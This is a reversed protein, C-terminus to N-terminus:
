KFREKTYELLAKGELKRTSPGSRKWFDKYIGDAKVLIPKSAKKCLIQIIKKEEIEIIDLDILNSFQPEILSEIFDTIQRKIEDESEYLIELEKEIGTIEIPHDKIGILLEGGEANMFGAITKICVDKLYKEKIPFYNPDEAIKRVDLSFSEKFELFKTEGREIRAKLPDENLNFINNFKEINNFSLSLKNYLDEKDSFKFEIGVYALSCAIPNKDKRNIKYLNSLYKKDQKINNEVWNTKIKKIFKNFVKLKKILSVFKIINIKYKYLDFYEIFEKTFSFDKKYNKIYDDYLNKRYKFYKTTIGIFDEGRLHQYCFCWTLILDGSYKLVTLFLAKKKYSSIKFDELVRKIFKEQHEEDVRYHYIFDGESDINKHKIILQNYIEENKKYTCEEKNFLKKLVINNEKLINKIIVFENEESDRFNIEQFMNEYNLRLSLYYEEEYKEFFNFADHPHYTSAQNIKEVLEEGKHNVAHLELDPRGLSDVKSQMISVSSSGEYCEMLGIISSEFDYFEKLEFVKIFSNIKKHEIDIENKLLDYLLIDNNTNDIGKHFESFNIVEFRQLDKIVLDIFEEKSVLPNGEPTRIIQKENEIAIAFNGNYKIKKLLNTDVKKRAM